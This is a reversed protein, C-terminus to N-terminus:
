GQLKSNKIIKHLTIYSYFVDELFNQHRGRLTLLFVLALSVDDVSCRLDEDLGSSRRLKMWFKDVFNSAMAFLDIWSNEAGVVSLM